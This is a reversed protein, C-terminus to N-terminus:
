ASSPQIKQRATFRLRSSLDDGNGRRFIAIESYNTRQFPVPCIHFFMRSQVMLRKALGLRRYSRLVSISTVHGHPEDDQGLDEERCTNILLCRFKMLLSSGVNKGSYLGSDARQSRGCRLFATAVITRPLSRNSAVIIFCGSFFVTQTTSNPKCYKMTYNEPLNQLNCAQM